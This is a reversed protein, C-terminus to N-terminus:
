AAPTVQAERNRIPRIPVQERSTVQRAAYARDPLGAGALLLPILYFILTTISQDDVFFQRVGASAAFV